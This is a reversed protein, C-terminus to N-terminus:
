SYATKLAKLIDIPKPEEKQAAILEVPNEPYLGKSKVYYKSNTSKIAMLQYRGYSSAKGGWPCLLICCPGLPLHSSGFQYQQPLDAICVRRLKASYRDKNARIINNAWHRKHFSMSRVTKTKTVADLLSM